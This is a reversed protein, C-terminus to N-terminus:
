LINQTLLVRGQWMPITPSKHVVPSLVERGAGHKDKAYDSFQNGILILAEGTDARRITATKTDVLQANRDNVSATVVADDDDDDGGELRGGNIRNWHIGENGDVYECGPGVLSQIWRLPVHDLHWQPCKTAAAGRTAVLRIQYYNNNKVGSSLLLHEECFSQFESLCTTLYDEMVKMEQSRTTAAAKKTIIQSLVHQAVHRPNDNSGNWNVTVDVGNGSAGSAFLPPVIVEFPNKKDDTFFSSPISTVSNLLPSAQLNPKEAPPPPLCDYETSSSTASVLRRRCKSSGISFAASQVLCCMLLLQPLIM